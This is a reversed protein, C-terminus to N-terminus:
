TPNDPPAEEGAPPEEGAPGEMEAASGTLPIARGEEAPAPAPADGPVPEPEQDAQAPDRGQILAVM